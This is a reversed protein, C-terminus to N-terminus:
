KSLITSILADASSGSRFARESPRHRIDNRLLNKANNEYEEKISYTFREFKDGDHYSRNHDLSAEDLYESLGSRILKKKLYVKGLNWGDIKIETLNNSLGSMLVKSLGNKDKRDLFLFKDFALALGEKTQFKDRIKTDIGRIDNAISLSDKILHPFRATVVSFAIPDTYDMLSDQWGKVKWYKGYKKWVDYLLDSFKTTSLIDGDAYIKAADEVKFDGFFANWFKLIFEILDEAEDFVQPREIGISVKHKINGGRTFDLTENVTKARM